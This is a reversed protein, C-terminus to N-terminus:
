FSSGARLALVPPAPCNRGDLAPTGNPTYEFCFKYCHQRSGDQPDTNKVRKCWEVSGAFAPHAKYWETIMQKLNGPGMLWVDMPAFPHFLFYLRRDSAPCFLPCVFILPHASTHPPAIYDGTRAATNACSVWRSVPLTSPRRPTFNCMVLADFKLQLPSPPTIEFTITAPEQNPQSCGHAQSSIAQQLM